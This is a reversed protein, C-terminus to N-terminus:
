KKSVLSYHLSYELTHMDRIFDNYTSRCIERYWDDDQKLLEDVTNDIIDFITKHLGKIKIDNWISIYSINGRKLTNDLKQQAKKKM